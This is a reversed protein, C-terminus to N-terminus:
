FSFDVLSLMGFYYLSNMTPFVKLIIAKSNGKKVRSFHIFHELETFVISIHPNEHPVTSM